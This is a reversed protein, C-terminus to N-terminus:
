FFHRVGLAVRRPKTSEAGVGQENKGIGVTGYVYTRKSLGHSYTLGVGTKNNKEGQPDERLVSLYVTGADTVQYSLSGSIGKTKNKLSSNVYKKENQAYVLGAGFAGMKTAISAAVTNDRKLGEVKGGDVSEYGLGVTFVGWDGVGAISYSDNRKSIDGTTINTDAEEGASYGAYIKVGGLDPTTYTIANDRKSTYGVIADSSYYWSQGAMDGAEIAQTLAMAQRGLKVTGFHGGLGVWAQGQWFRSSNALRGTDARGRYELNFLGKLGDGLDEQGVIGVRSGGWIGDNIQLDSKGTTNADKNKSEVAVDVSGVMQITTAAQAFAPLAAAVALAVLSKKM